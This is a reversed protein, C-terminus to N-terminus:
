TSYITYVDNDKLEFGHIDMDCFYDDDCDHKDIGHEDVYALYTKNILEFIQKVTFGNDSMYEKCFSNESRSVHVTILTNFIKEKMNMQGSGLTRMITFGDRSINGCIPFEYKKSM